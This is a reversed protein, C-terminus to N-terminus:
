QKIRRLVKMKKDDEKADKDKQSEKQSKWRRAVWRAIKMMKHGEFLM